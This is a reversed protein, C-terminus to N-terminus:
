SSGRWCMAGSSQGTTAWISLWTLKTSRWVANTASARSSSKSQALLTGSSWAETRQNFDDISMCQSHAKDFREFGILTGDKRRARFKIARM